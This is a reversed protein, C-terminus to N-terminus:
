DGWYVVPNKAFDIGLASWEVDIVARDDYIIVARLDATPHGRFPIRKTEDTVKAVPSWRCELRDGLWKFVPLPATKPLRLIKGEGLDTPEGRLAAAYKSVNVAPAFERALMEITDDGRSVDFMGSVGGMTFKVVTSSVELNGDRVLKILQAVKARSGPIIKPETNRASRRRSRRSSGDDSAATAVATSLILLPDLEQM